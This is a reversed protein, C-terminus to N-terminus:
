LGAPREDLWTRIAAAVREREERTRGTFLSVRHCMWLGRSRPSIISVDLWSVRVGDIDNRDYATERATGLIGYVTRVLETRYLRITASAQSVIAVYVCMMVAPQLFFSAISESTIGVPGVNGRLAATAWSLIRVLNMALLMFALFIWFPRSRLLTGAGRVFGEKPLKITLVDGVREFRIDAHAGVNEYDLM